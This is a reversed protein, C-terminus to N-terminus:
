PGEHSANLFCRVLGFLDGAILRLGMRTPRVGYVDYTPRDSALGLLRRM